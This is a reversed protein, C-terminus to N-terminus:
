LFLDLKLDTSWSVHFLRKELESMNVTPNLNRRKEVGFYFRKGPFCFLVAGTFIKFFSLSQSSFWSNNNQQRKKVKKRRVKWVTLEGRAPTIKFSSGKKKKGHLHMRMTWHPFNQQTDSSLIRSAFQRSGHQKEASFRFWEAISVGVWRWLQCFEQLFSKVTANTTDIKIKQLKHNVNQLSVLNQYLNYM